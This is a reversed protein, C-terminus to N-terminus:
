TLGTRFRSVHLFRAGGRSAGRAALGQMNGQDKSNNTRHFLAPESPSGSRVKMLFVAAVLAASFRDPLVSVLICLIVPVAMCGM